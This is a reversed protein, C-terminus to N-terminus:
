ADPATLLGRDRNFRRMAKTTWRGDARHIWPWRYPTWWELPNNDGFRFRVGQVAVGYRTVNVWRMVFWPYEDDAPIATTREIWGDRPELIAIEEGLKAEGRSDVRHVVVEHLAAPGGVRFQVTIVIIDASPDYQGDAACVVALKRPTLRWLRVEIVTVLVAAALAVLSM